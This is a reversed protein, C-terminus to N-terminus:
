LKGLEAMAHRYYAWHRRLDSYCLAGEYASYRLRTNNEFGAHRDQWRRLSVIICRVQERIRATVERMANVHEVRERLNAQLFYGSVLFDEFDKSQAGIFDANKFGLAKALEDQHHSNTHAQLM